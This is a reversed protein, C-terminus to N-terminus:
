LGKLPTYYVIARTQLSDPYLLMKYGFANVEITKESRKHKLQWNVARGLSELKRGRNSPHNWLENFRKLYGQM